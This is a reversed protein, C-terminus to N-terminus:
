VRHVSTLFFREVNFVAKDEWHLVDVDLGVQAVVLVLFVRCAATRLLTRWARFQPIDELVLM